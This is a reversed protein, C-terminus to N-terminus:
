AVFTKPVKLCSLKSPFDQCEGRGGGLERKRVKEIGSNLSLSFPEGVANKSVARCFIIRRFFKISGWKEDMFKHSVPFKGFRLVSLKGQLTKGSQSVFIKRRFITFFGDSAYFSEIGSILSVRFHELAFKLPVTLCFKKSPFDHCLERLCLSKRYGCDSVGQLTERRIKKPVTPRFKKPLYDQYRGRGRIWLSKESGSFKQFM